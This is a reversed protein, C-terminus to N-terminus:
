QELIKLFTIDICIVCFKLNETLLLKLLKSNEVNISCLKCKNLQLKTLCQKSISISNSKVKKNNLM